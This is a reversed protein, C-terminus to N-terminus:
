FSYLRDVSISVSNRITDKATNRNHELNLNILKKIEYKSIVQFIVHFILICHKNVNKM